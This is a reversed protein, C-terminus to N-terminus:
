LSFVLTRDKSDRINRKNWKLSGYLWRLQHVLLLYDGRLFVGGARDVPTTGKQAELIRQSEM